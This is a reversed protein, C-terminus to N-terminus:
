GPTKSGKGKAAANDLRRHKLQRSVSGTATLDALVEPHDAQLRRFADANVVAYGAPDVNQARLREFVSPTNKAPVYLGGGSEYLYWEVGGVEVPQKARVRAGIANKVRELGAELALGMAALREPPVDEFQYGEESAKAIAERSLPCTAALPCYQCWYGGRPPFADPGADKNAHYVAVLGRLWELAGETQASSLEIGHITKQRLDHIEVRITVPRDWKFAREILAGYLPMQTNGALQVPVRGTKFDRVLVMDPSLRVAFDLYGRVSDKTPLGLDTKAEIEAQWGLPNAGLLRINTAGEHVMEVLEPYDDESLEPIVALSATFISQFIVEPAVSGRDKVWLELAKHVLNGQLAPLSSADPLPVPAAYKAYWARPCQELLKARSHSWVM